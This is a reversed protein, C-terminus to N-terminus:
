NGKQFAEVTARLDYALRCGDLGLAYQHRRRESVWSPNLDHHSRLLVQDHERSIDVIVVRVGHVSAGDLEVPTDPTKPEDLLMLFVEGFVAPLRADVHADEWTQQFHVIPQLEDATEIQRDIAPDLLRLSLLADHARYVNQTFEQAGSGYADSVRKMLEKESRGAPPHKLCSVFADVRSESLTAELREPPDLLQIEARAYVLPRALSRDWGELTRLSEHHAPGLYGSAELRLARTLRQGIAHASPTLTARLSARSQLLTQKATDLQAQGLRQERVIAFVLLGIAAVVGVRLLATRRPKASSGQRLRRGRVSASVRGRLQSSM